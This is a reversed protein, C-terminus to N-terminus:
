AAKPTVRKDVRNVIKCRPRAVVQATHSFGAEAGCVCDEELEVNAMNEAIRRAAVKVYQAQQNPKAELFNRTQFATGGTNIAFNACVDEEDLEIELEPDGELPKKKSDAFTYVYNKDKGVVNKAPKGAVEIETLPSVHYYTLGMRNYLDYGLILRYDQLSFPSLPSKECPQSIVGVVAKAAGARFPYRIGAEYADTVKFTGLEVDLRQKVYQVTKPGFGKEEVAEDMTVLPDRSSPFSMHGIDGGGEINANNNSSYHQPKRISEGFGILGIHVDTIGHQKLESKLEQMVPKILDKFTKENDSEQEVIFVIDAQKTPIKVSFSDGGNISNDGVKCQVCENPLSVYVNKVLCKTVYASAVVCAGNKNGAAVLQDCSARFLRPDEYNFCPTLSSKGSFYKTCIPARAAEGEKAQAAACSPNLKYANVLDSASAAVKGSPLIYDDSPENNADGLLGRLRGHYYGSVRLYCSMGGSGINCVLKAGYKSIIKRLPAALHAMLNKTSAPYDAPKNNVLLNGNSKITISEGPETMTVSVLNGSAYEGVVSFNGDKMDQALIYSCAGTFVYQSGDFTVVHGGDSFTGYKKAPPISDEVDHLPRYTYYLDFITPLERNMLLRLVSVRVTSLGPLRRLYSIDFPLQAELFGFVNEATAHSQVLALLSHIAGVTQSYIKKLESGNDVKEHRAHKIVYSYVSGFLDKLEQTPLINKINNCFEEIPAIVYDPIRYNVAEKYLNQAMEYVPLARVQQSLLQVFEKVEKEIQSAGKLVIKAVDQVIDSAVGVIEEIDKQHENVIKLIAEAYATALKAVSDSIKVAVQFIKDFSEKLQPYTAKVAEQFKNCIENLHDRLEEYHEAFKKVAETVAAIIGGFSKNLSEQIEKVAADAHLENKLKTLEGEFYAILSKLSPQAKKLHEFLDGFEVVVEKGIEEGVAKVDKVHQILHERVMHAVEIINKSSYAFDPKMFKGEDLHILLHFLDLKAGQKFADAHIEALQGLVVKGNATLKNKDDDKTGLDFKFSNYDKVELNAVRPKNGLVAAEASVKQADKAIDINMRYKLLDKGPVYVYVEVKKPDATFDAGLSKPQKAKDTYHLTAGVDISSSSVAFHNDSKVDLQQGKSLVNFNGTVNYGKPIASRAVRANVTIKDNKSAFVDLDVNGTFLQEGVGALMNGKVVLDKTQTPYTFKAEGNIGVTNKDVKVDGALVLSTKETPKNKRDLYLSVDIKYAGSHKIAPIDHFAVVALERSPLSLVAASERKNVYVHYNYQTRDKSSHLYLNAQHDLSLDAYKTTTQLGFEIPVNFKKLNVEVQLNQNLYSRKDTNLTSQLKFHACEKSQECYSNFVHVEKDSLKLEGVIAAPGFSANLKIAVGVEKDAERTLQKRVYKFSSSKTDEGIQLQGSGELTFKGAEEEDHKKYNTSGTVLNKGDSTVTVFIRRGDGNSPKNAVEAHIKRHKFKDSDFNLSVVFDDVSELKVKGDLTVFGKPTALKYEGTYENDGLKKFKALLETTGAPCTFVLHIGPNDQNLEIETTQTYKVGDVTLAVDTKRSKDGDRKHEGKIEVSKVREFPTSFKGDVSAKSLDTNWEVNLDHTFGKGGLKYFGQRSLKKQEGTLDHHHDDQIEFDPKGDTKLTLHFTRDFKGQDEYNEKGTQRWHTHLKIKKDDNYTLNKYKIYEWVGGEHAQELVTEDYTFVFNKLKESPFKGTVEGKFVGPKDVNNGSAWLMDGVLEIDSGRSIGGKLYLSEKDYESNVFGGLTTGILSGSFGVDVAGSKKESDPKAEHKAKIKTGFDKGDSHIYKIDYVTDFLREKANAVNVDASAVIKRTEGGKTVQDAVEGQAKVTLKDDKKTAARNAKVTLHRGNPLTVELDIDQKGNLFDGQRTGKVNVETKYSLIELVNKSDLSTKTFDSNSSLKIKKSPEKDADYALELNAVHKSGAVSVDGTGKIKRNIKPIEININGSGKGDKYSFQGNTVLYSKLNLVLSGSPASGKKVNLKYDVYKIGNAIIQVHNNVKDPNCELGTDVKLKKGNLNIDADVAVNIDNKKTQHKVTADAQYTGGPTLKLSNEFKSKSEELITRKALLKVKNELVDASFDIDYDGPKNANVKGNLQSGLKFNEYKVDVDANVSNKTLKADLKVALGVRPYALQNNTSLSFKEPDPNLEAKQVLLLRNNESKLDPGQTFALKHDFTSKQLNFDWELGFGNAPNKDPLASAVLTYHLEGLKKSDVKLGLKEDAYGLSIDVNVSTPTVAAKGDIGVVKRGNSVLQVDNFAYKKGGEHDAVEITGQVQHMQGKNKAKGGALKEIHEPVKYELIPKYKNGSILEVGGKAFYEIQDNKVTVTVTYDKVLAEASAKKIPSDFAVKLKLDPDMAAQATLSVFRPTRSNPTELVIELSRDKPNKNNYLAKFHYSTVDNNEITAYFKFPGSLPYLPKKQLSAVNDYPYSLHGCVTLGLPATFQDFCDSRDKGKSFKVPTYKDAKGNSFLVDSSVNIIEQKKKPLGLTVDVGKGDLVKVNLDYGTATHLTTVLRIGSESGFGDEVKLDGVFEISASPELAIKFNANKPDALMQSIDIKTNTKSRVVSSGTMGLNLSLGLATPYVFEAELFHVHNEIDYNLNKIKSVGQDFRELIKDIVQQPTYSQGSGGYSLFAIEVGFLKISLDLDLDEDVENDRLQVSNAFKDLDAQKVERKSRKELRKSIYNSLSKLKGYGTKVADKPKENPVVGKPGLFHEIVRDLNEARGNLELFNFSHGFLETTLNLSASRPVFSNQSFIVNSDATSGVGFADFDYSLENNFSFKRWDEPFKTRPKINELHAKAHAKFPDASARLNRLHSQIFSGVQYVKEQDLVEKIKAAAAACPCAVFALYAKIRIESDEEQDAFPKFLIKKWSMACKTPLAEIAAVRVRNRVKKDAAINALKTSTAEDLYKANGLAKLAAIVLDEDARKDAKGDKVKSAIKALATKVEPVNECVHHQCYKGIIQGVGLYGIRHLNPQDLLTVIATVSPLNVHQIFALSAYYLLAQADSIEKNKILEVVVEAAEGTGTRYLADLLVKKDKEKDYGAGAKIRHYITLIDKRNSTRLVRILESFKRAEEPRVADASDKHIAQLAKELADVSSKVQPHPVQFILSKPQSVPAAPTADDKAGKLTLTTEVITKAGADGNSFPRLKYTETSTAKELIGAKFRQEVKQQSGIIPTSTVGAAPNVIGSFLGQKVNERNSCSNLNKNKQVIQVDGEKSFTFDTICGGFIDVEHRTTSGEDQLVSAQLLSIVARKINLSAETDGAEACLETDIHGHHYNFQLAHKEVNQNSVPAGNVQVNKLRVQRICDPKIAVEVDAKLKLQADGQGESVSTTSTGELAYSYTQGEKYSKDSHMGHCGTTCKNSYSPQALLLLSCAILGATWLRPPHGM